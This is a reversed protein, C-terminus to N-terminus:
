YQCNKRAFDQDEFSLQNTDFLLFGPPAQKQPSFSIMELAPTTLLEAQSPTLVVLANPQQLACAVPMRDTILSVSGAKVLTIYDREGQQILQPDMKTYWAFFLLSHFDYSNTLFVHNYQAQLSHVVRALEPNYGQFGHYTDQPFYTWFAILFLIASYSVALGISLSSIWQWAWSDRWEVIHEIGIATFYNLAPLMLLARGAHPVDQTLSAPIPSLLLWTLFISNSKNPHRIASVLGVLFFPLMMSLLNGYKSFSLNALNGGPFFLFDPRFHQAYNKAIVRIAVLVPQNNWGPLPLKSEEIMQQNESQQNQIFSPSFVSVIRSRDGASGFMTQATIFLALCFFVLHGLWRQKLEGKFNARYQIFTSVAIFLPVFVREANYAYMSLALIGAGVIHFVRGPKLWVYYGLLLLGHGLIPDMLARSHYLHWPTIALLLATLTATGISKKLRYVIGFTSAVGIIGLLAAVLRATHTTAGFVSFFPILLYSLLAPKNEGFSRLLFPHQVGWEDAGTLWLSYANYAYATEDWNLGAPVSDLQPLRLLASIFVILLFCAALIKSPM